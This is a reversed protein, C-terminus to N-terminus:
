VTMIVDLAPGQFGFGLSLRCDSALLYFTRQWDFAMEWNSDRSNRPCTTWYGDFSTNATPSQPTKSLNQQLMM